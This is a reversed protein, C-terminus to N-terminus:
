GKKLKELSNAHAKIRDIGKRVQVLEEKLKDIEEKLQDFKKKRDKDPIMIEVQGELIFYFNEGVEGYECIIEDSNKELLKL